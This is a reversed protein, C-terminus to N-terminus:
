NSAAGSRQAGAELLRQEIQDLLAPSGHESLEVEVERWSTAETGSGM